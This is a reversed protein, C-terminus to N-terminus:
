LLYTAATVQGASKFGYRQFVTDLFDQINNAMSFDLSIEM